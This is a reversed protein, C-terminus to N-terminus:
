RAFTKPAPIPSSGREVRERLILVEQEYAVLPIMIEVRPPEGRREQVARAAGM